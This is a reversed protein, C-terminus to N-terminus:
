GLQVGGGGTYTRFPHVAALKSAPPSLGSSNYDRGGLIGELNLANLLQVM